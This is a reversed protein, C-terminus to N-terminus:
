KNKNLLTRIDDITMPKLDGSYGVPTRGRESPVGKEMDFRDQSRGKAFFSRGEEPSARTDVTKRADSSEKVDVTKLAPSKDSNPIQYRGKTDAEKTGYKTDAMWAKQTGAFSKANFSKASFARAGSFEKSPASKSSFSRDTGFTSKRVDYNLTADPKKLLRDIMKEQQQGFASAAAGLLALLSLALLPRVLPPHCAPAKAALHFSIAKSTIKVQDYM